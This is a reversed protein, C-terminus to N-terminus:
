KNRTRRNESMQALAAQGSLTLTLVAWALPPALYNALLFMPSHFIRTRPVNSAM